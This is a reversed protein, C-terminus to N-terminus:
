QTKKKYSLYDILVAEGDAVQQMTQPAVVKIAGLEDMLRAVAIQMGVFANFTDSKSCTAIGMALVEHKYLMKAVTQRGDCTVVMIPALYKRVSHEGTYYKKGDATAITLLYPEVEVVNGVIGATYDRDRDYLMVRDNVKIPKTPTKQNDNAM